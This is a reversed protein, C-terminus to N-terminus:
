LNKDTLWTEDWNFHAPKDEPYFMWPPYKQIDKSPPLKDPSFFELELSEGDLSGLEGGVIECRFVSVTMELKDGNPYTGAFLLVGLLRLPRVRLGTEEYAERVLTQAPQEGPDTAGGIVGWDKTDSRRQLLVRRREDHIIAAAGPVLLLERGVFGRLRKLYSSIPM